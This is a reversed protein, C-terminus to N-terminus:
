ETGVRFLYEYFTTRCKTLSFINRISNHLKIWSQLCECVLSKKGPESSWSPLELELIADDIGFDIRRHTNFLEALDFPQGIRHAKYIIMDFVYMRRM